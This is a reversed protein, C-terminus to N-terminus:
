NIKSKLSSSNKESIQAKLGIIKLHSIESQQVRLKCHLGDSVILFDNFVTEIFMSKEAEDSANTKTSLDEKKHRSNSVPFDTVL